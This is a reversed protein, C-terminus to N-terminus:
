RERSDMVRPLYVAALSAVLALAAVIQLVRLTSIGDGGEDAAPEATLTASDEEPAQKSTDLSAPLTPQPAGGAAAGTNPAAEPSASFPTLAQDTGARASDDADAAASEAQREVAPAGATAGAGDQSSSSPSSLDAADIFLLAILVTLAAVPAFTFSPRRV